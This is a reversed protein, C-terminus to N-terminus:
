SAGANELGYHLVVGVFVVLGVYNNHLFAQFCADEARDRILYQQYAFLGAAILLSLYYFLGLEFRQGALWLAMLTFVQLAGIMAKDMDGFLIATSKIGAKRDDNRDVMAYETDYATTWLLNAIFLLWLEAPLENRVAAFSMPIGWSFAAGLVLQPLHTIRKMFPYSSALAVAAFSLLITLNNTFLVLVFALLGLIAALALAESASVQGTVLPRNETRVVRSDLHRDALDNVVCGASRTLFTGLVFILLLSTAPVGNSAIWLATLTPWLLLLTGIPRSFRILDLYAHLRNTAPTTTDTM